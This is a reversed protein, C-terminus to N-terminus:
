KISELRCYAHVKVGFYGNNYGEPYKACVSIGIGAGLFLGLIFYAVVAILVLIGPASKMM